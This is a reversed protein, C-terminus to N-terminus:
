RSASMEETDKRYGERMRTSNCPSVGGTDKRYAEPIRGTHPCFRSEAVQRPELTCPFSSGWKALDAGPSLIVFINQLGELIRGAPGTQSVAETECIPILCTATVLVGFSTGWWFWTFPVMAGTGASRKCCFDTIRGTDKCFAEPIEEPNVHGPFRM